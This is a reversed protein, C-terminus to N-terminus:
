RHRVTWTVPGSDCQDIVQGTARDIVTTRGRFTGTARRESVFRGASRLTHKADYPSNGLRERYQGAARFRGTSSVSDSYASRVSLAGRGAVNCDGTWRFFGNEIKRGNQVLRFTFNKGQSTPGKYFGTQGLTAAVAVAASV